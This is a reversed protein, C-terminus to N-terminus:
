STIWRAEGVILTLKESSFTYHTTTLFTIGEANVSQVRVFVFPSKQLITVESGQTQFLAGIRGVLGPLADRELQVLTAQDDKERIELVEISHLPKSWQSPSLITSGTGHFYEAYRKPLMLDQPYPTTATFNHSVSDVVVGLKEDMGWRTYIKNFMFDDDVCLVHTVGCQYIIDSVFNVGSNDQLEPLIIIAGSWGYINDIQKSLRDRMLQSLVGTYHVYPAYMSMEGNNDLRQPETVGVFYSISALSLEVVEDITIPYEVIGASIAGPLSFLQSVGPDMDVLLPKWQLRAAYSCLTKAVAAKNCIHSGCILAVPGIKNEKEAEKRRAHLYCHYEVVPRVISHPPGRYINKRLQPSGEIRLHSKSWSYINITKGPLLTYTVDVILPAGYVEVRPKGYGTNPMVKVTSGGKPEDLPVIIVLESNPILVINVCNDDEAEM